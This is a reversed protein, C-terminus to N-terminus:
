IFKRPHENLNRYNWRTSLNANLNMLKIYEILYFLDVRPKSLVRFVTKFYARQFDDVKGPISLKMIGEEIVPFSCEFNDALDGADVICVHDQYPIARAITCSSIPNKDEDTVCCSDFNLQVFKKNFILHGYKTMQLLYPSSFLPRVDLKRGYPSISIGETNKAQLHEVVKNVLQGVLMSEPTSPSVRFIDIPESKKPISNAEVLHVMELLQFSRSAVQPPTPLDALRVKVGHCEVLQQNSLAIVSNWLEKSVLSRAIASM